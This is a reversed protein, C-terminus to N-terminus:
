KMEILNVINVCYFHYTDNSPHISPHIFKPKANVFFLFLFLIRYEFHRYFHIPKSIQCDRRIAYTWICLCYVCYYFVNSKWRNTPFFIRMDPSLMLHRNNSISPIWFRFCHQLIWNLKRIFVICVIIIILPRMLYEGNLCLIGQLKWRGFKMEMEFSVIFFSFFFCQSFKPACRRM